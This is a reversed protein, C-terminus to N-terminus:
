RKSKLSGRGLSSLWLSWKGSEEEERGVVSGLDSFVQLLVSLFADLDSNPVDGLLDSDHPLGDVFFGLGLVLHAM